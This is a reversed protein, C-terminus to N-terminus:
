GLQMNKWMEEFRSGIHRAAEESLVRLRSGGGAGANTSGYGAGGFGFSSPSCFFWPTYKYQKSNSWDIDGYGNEREIKRAAEIVVNADYSAEKYVRMDEPYVSFDVKPRGTEKYADEISNLRKELQEKLKKTEM